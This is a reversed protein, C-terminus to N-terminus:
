SSTVPSNGVNTLKVVANADNLLFGFETEARIGVLNNEWLSVLSGNITATAQTSVDYTIGGIQGWAVQSWDALYGVVDTLNASAVGEGFFAPRNMLTGGGLPATAAMAEPLNVWIPHGTTDVQGWLSPELVADLAWGTARYRRGSADTDTVLDALANTLDKFIGGNAATTTGVEETKTTQDLYTSFPGGGASGSPGEDHAAARDFAIAFAEAIDDRFINIYNGPNARVVEASVIAIAAIKKPTMTKLTMAGATAPKQGGESVWGATPRTTVVPVETGAVGLPVRRGLRQVVSLQATREFIAGAREPNLFGSFDGTVTAATVAM